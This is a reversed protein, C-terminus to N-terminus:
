PAPVGRIGYIYKPIIYDNSASMSGTFAGGQGGGFTVKTGNLKVTRAYKYSWFGELYTTLGSLCIAGVYEGSTKSTQAVVYIANYGGPITVDQAAFASTPSLNTWLKTWANTELLLESGNFKVNDHSISLGDGRGWPNANTGYPILNIVGPYSSNGGANHFGIHPKYTFSSPTENEFSIFAAYNSTDKLKQKIYATSSNLVIPGTITDGSKLVNDTARGNVRNIGDAGRYIMWKPDSHFASGDYYGYTWIGHNAGSGTDLNLSIGTLNNYAKVLANGAKEAIINGTRVVWNQAVEFSNDAEAAKGFAAGSGNPRFKLSWKRTPVTYYYVASNSLADAATIKVTYSLDPSLSGGGLVSATGSTLSAAAGYSGGSPAIAAKLTCSNQGNLSSFSRTAKVSIYTGDEAATGGSGCRFVSVGSLAPGAYDMVALTFSESATRGRTDTVTCVVNVSVSALVPTRYPAASAVSGQCAVSYSAVSAGPANALSIKSANFSVQARSYGRVYGSINAAATQANYPALTAWGSSVSPKMGADATVTLTREAPDGVPVTCSQDAYTQVSVRVDLTLARPYSSFWGRPIAYSLSTGFADSVALTAGDCLFSARHYFAASSRDVTLTLTSGTAASAPCFSITSGRPHTTLPVTVSAPASVGFMKGGCRAGFYGGMGEHLSVTLNAAGSADHSVTVSSGDSGSVIGFSNALNVQNSGGNMTKAATGNFKVVGFVPSSGAAYGSSMEVSTLTVTSKNSSADYVETYNVRVSNTYYGYGSVQYSDSFVASGM